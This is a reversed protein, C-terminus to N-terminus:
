LLIGEKSYSVGGPGSNGSNCVYCDNGSLDMNEGLWKVSKQFKGDLVYANHQMQERNVMTARNIVTSNLIAQMVNYEARYLIAHNVATRVFLNAHYNECIFGENGCRVDVHLVLGNVHQGSRGSILLTNIDNGVIGYPRLYQHLAAEKGGCGCSTGNDRPATGPTLSYLFLYALPRGDRSSPLELSAIAQPVPAAITAQLQIDKIHSQVQYRVGDNVAEYVSVTLPGDFNFFTQVSSVVLTGGRGAMDLVVGALPYAINLLGNGSVSGVPGAYSASRTSYRSGLEMFLNRKFDLVANKRALELTDQLDACTDRSAKLASLPASHETEGLFLGSTSEAALANFDQSFCPCSTRSLGIINDFCDM